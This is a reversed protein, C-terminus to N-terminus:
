HWFINQDGGRVDEDGRPIIFTSERLPINIIFLRAQVTHIIMVVAYMFFISSIIM